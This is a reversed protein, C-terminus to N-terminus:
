QGLLKKIEAVEPVRGQIRPEGDIALGPLRLIQYDALVEPDGTVEIDAEIGVEAVAQYVNKEFKRCNACGDGLVEIKKM